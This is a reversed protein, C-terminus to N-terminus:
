WKMRYSLRTLESQSNPTYVTIFYYDKFELTIVRGEQDHEEIGLGYFVSIPEEKTFIGTGSYGKKVAYNWYQHYGPLNLDLQGEQMKSEQICFIDADTENFFDLFGKKVCARIGNVNWGRRKNYLFMIVGAAIIVCYGVFSLMDPLQGFVLLGMIASFMIQTYDYVSIERAPAYTYAATVGFQGGAAALGTLLLFFLQRASIPHFDMILYPVCALMSFTSFFLVIM